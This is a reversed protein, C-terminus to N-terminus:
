GKQIRGEIAGPELEIPGIFVQVDQILFKADEELRIGVTRDKLVGKVSGPV